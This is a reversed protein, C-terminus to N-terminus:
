VVEGDYSSHPAPERRMLKTVSMSDLHGTFANRQVYDLALEAVGVEADRRDVELADVAAFDDLGNVV